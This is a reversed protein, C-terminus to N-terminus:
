NDTYGMEVMTNAYLYPTGDHPALGTPYEADTFVFVVYPASNCPYEDSPDTYKFMKPIYKTCDITGSVAPVLQSQQYHEVLGSGDTKILFNTIHHRKKFHLTIYDEYHSRHFDGAQGTYQKSVESGGATIQSADWLFRTMDDATLPTRLYDSKPKVSFVYMDCYYGCRGTESFNANPYITYGLKLYKPKLNNGIRGIPLANTPLDFTGGGLDYMIPILPICNLNSMNQWVEIATTSKTLRKVEDEKDVIRRVLQTVEKKAEKTKMFKGKTM